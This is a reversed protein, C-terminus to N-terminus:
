KRSDVLFMWFKTDPYKAKYIMYDVRIAVAAIAVVAGILLALKLKRM